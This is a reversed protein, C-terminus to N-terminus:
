VRSFHVISYEAKFVGIKSNEGYRRDDVYRTYNMPLVNYVKVLSQSSMFIPSIGFISEIIDALNFNITIYMKIMCKHFLAIEKYFLIDLVAVQIRLM